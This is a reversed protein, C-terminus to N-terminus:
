SGQSGIEQLRQFVDDTGGVAHLRQRLLGAGNWCRLAFLFALFPIKPVPQPEFMVTTTDITEGTNLSLLAGDNM